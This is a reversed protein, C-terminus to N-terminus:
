DQQYGRSEMCRKFLENFRQESDFPRIAKRYSYLNGAQASNNSGFLTSRDDEIREDHRVQANAFAYCSELDAQHQEQTTNPSEWDSSETQVDDLPVASEGEILPPQAQGGSQPQVQPQVQSGTPPQPASRPPTPDVGPLPQQTCAALLGGFAASLVARRAWGGGVTAARM